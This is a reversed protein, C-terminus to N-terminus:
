TKQFEEYVESPYLLESDSKAQQQSPASGAKALPAPYGPLLLTWQRDQNYSRDTPAQESVTLEGASMATLIFHLTLPSKSEGEFQYFRISSPRIKREVLRAWAEDLPKEVEMWYTIQKTQPDQVLKFEVDAHSILMLEQALALHNSLQEAESWFSQETSMEHIKVGTLAMGCALICLVILLELLTFHSKKLCRMTIM